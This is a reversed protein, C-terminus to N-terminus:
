ENPERLSCITPSVNTSTFWQRSASGPVLSSSMSRTM